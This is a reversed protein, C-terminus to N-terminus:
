LASVIQDLTAFKTQLEAWEKRGEAGRRAYESNMAKDSLIQGCRDRSETLVARTLILQDLTLDVRHKTAMM